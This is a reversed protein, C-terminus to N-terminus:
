FKSMLHNFIVFLFFTFNMNSVITAEHVGSYLIAEHICVHFGINTVNEVWSASYDIIPNDAGHFVQSSIVITPNEM